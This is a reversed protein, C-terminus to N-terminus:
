IIEDGEIIDKLTIVNTWGTSIKRKEVSIKNNNKLLRIRISIANYSIKNKFFKIIKGKTDYGCKIANLVDSDSITNILPRRSTKIGKERKILFMRNRSIDIKNKLRNEIARKSCNFKLAIDSLCYGNNRMEIMTNIHCDLDKRYAWHNEGSLKIKIKQINSNVIEHRHKSVIPYNAGGICINYGHDPHCTNYFSIWYIEKNDLEDKNFSYDIVKCIFNHPGYHKIANGIISIKKKNLKYYKVHSLIRNEIGNITQGIYKKNNIINVICYIYGIRM